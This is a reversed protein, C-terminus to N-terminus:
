DVDRCSAWDFRGGGRFNQEPYNAPLTLHWGKRRATCAIVPFQSYDIADHIFQEKGINTLFADGRNWLAKRLRINWVQYSEGAITYGEGAPAKKSWDIEGGDSLYQWVAYRELTFQSPLTRVNKSDIKDLLQPNALLLAMAQHMYGLMIDPREPVGEEAEFLSIWALYRADDRVKQGNAAASAVIKAARYQLSGWPEAGGVPRYRNNYKEGTLYGQAADLDNANLASVAHQHDYLTMVNRGANRAMYYSQRCYTLMIVMAFLAIIKLLIKYKKM